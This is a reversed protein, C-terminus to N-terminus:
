AKNTKVLYFAASLKWNQRFGFKSTQIEVHRNLECKWWCERIKPSTRSRMWVRAKTALVARLRERLPQKTGSWSRKEKRWIVGSKARLWGAFFRQKNYPRKIRKHVISNDVNECNKIQLPRCTIQVEKDKECSTSIRRLTYIIQLKWCFILAYKTSNWLVM